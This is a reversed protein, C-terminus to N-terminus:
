LPNGVTDTEWCQQLHVEKEMCRVEEVRINFSEGDIKFAMIGDISNLGTIVRVYTVDLKQRSETIDHMEVIREM